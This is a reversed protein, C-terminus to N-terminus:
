ASLPLAFSKPDEDPTMPELYNDGAMWHCADLTGRNTKGDDRDVLCNPVPNNKRYKRFTAPFMEGCVHLWVRDGKSFRPKPAPAAPTVLEIKVMRYPWQSNDTDVGVVKGTLRVVDGVHIQEM